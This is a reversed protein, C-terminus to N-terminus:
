IRLYLYPRHALRPSLGVSTSVPLSSLSLSFAITSVPLSHFSPHAGPAYQDPTPTKTRPPPSSCSLSPPPSVHLLPALPFHLTCVPRGNPDSSAHLMTQGIASIVELIQREGEAALKRRGAGRSVDGPTAM